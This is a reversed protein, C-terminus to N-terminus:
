PMALDVLGGDAMVMLGNRSALSACAFILVSFLYFTGFLSAM